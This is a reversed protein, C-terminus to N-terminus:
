NIRENRPQKYIFEIGCGVYEEEQSDQILEAHYNGEGCTKCNDYLIWIGFPSEGASEVTEIFEDKKDHSIAFYCSVFGKAESFEVLSKLIEEKM